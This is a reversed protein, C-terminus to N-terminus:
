LAIFSFHLHFLDVIFSLNIWVFILFFVMMQTKPKGSSSQARVLPFFRTKNNSTSKTVLDLSSPRFGSSISICGSFSMNKRDSDFRLCTISIPKAMTTAM